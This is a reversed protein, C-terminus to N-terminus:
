ATRPVGPRAGRRDGATRACAPGAGARGAPTRHQIRRGLGRAVSFLVSVLEVPDARRLGPPGAFFGVVGAVIILAGWRARAPTAYQGASYATVLTALPSFDTAVQLFSEATLAAASVVLAAFPFRRRLVICAALVLTLVALLGLRAGAMPERTAEVAVMVVFLAGLAADVALPPIRRLRRLSRALPEPWPM